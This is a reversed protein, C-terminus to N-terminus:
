KKPALVQVEVIACRGPKHLNDRNWANDPWVLVTVLCRSLKRVLGLTNTRQSCVATGSAALTASLGLKDRLRRCLVSYPPILHTAGSDCRASISKWAAPQLQSRQWDDLLSQQQQQQRPKCVCVVLLLSPQHANCAPRAHVVVTRQQAQLPWAAAM